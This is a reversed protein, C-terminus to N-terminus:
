APPYKAALRQLTNMTRLTAELGLTRELVTNSFDSESQKKRCAWYIERGHAHFDDIATRLGMLADHAKQNIPQAVFAVNLAQVQQMTAADFPQYQAIRAVEGNTRVFTTVPYGLLKELETQIYAELKATAQTAGNTAGNSKTGDWEADNSETGDFIVNGSAIFTEVQAFGMQVFCARLEDMKLRRGGVNIARLFAICKSM